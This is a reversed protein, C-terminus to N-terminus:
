RRRGVVVSIVVALFKIEVITAVEDTDVIATSRGVLLVECHLVALRCIFCSTLVLKGDTGQGHGSACVYFPDAADFNM